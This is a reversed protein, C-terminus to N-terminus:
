LLPRGEHGTVNLFRPCTGRVWFLRNANPSNKALYARMVTNGEADKVIPNGGGAGSREEHGKIDKERGGAILAMVRLCSAAYRRNRAYNMDALSKELEPGIDFKLDNANGGLEGIWIATVGFKVRRILQEPSECCAGFLETASTVRGLFARVDALDDEPEFWEGGPAERCNIQAEVLVNDGDKVWSSDETLIGLHNEGDDKAVAAEGLHDVFEDRESQKILPCAYTPETTVRELLVPGEPCAASAEMRDMVESFYRLLESPSGGAFWSAYM